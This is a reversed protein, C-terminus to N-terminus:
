LVGQFVALYAVVASSVRDLRGCLRVRRTRRVPRRQRVRVPGANREALERQGGTVRYPAALSISASPLTPFHSCAVCACHFPHVMCLM